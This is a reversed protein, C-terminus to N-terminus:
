PRADPPDAPYSDDPKVREEAILRAIREREEPDSTRAHMRAFHDLNLQKLDAPTMPAETMGNIPGAILRAIAAL